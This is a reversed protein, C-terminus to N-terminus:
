KTEEPIKWSKIKSNNKFQEFLTYNEFYTIKIDAVVQEIINGDETFTIYWHEPRSVKCYSYM